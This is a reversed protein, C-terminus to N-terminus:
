RSLEVSNRLEDFDMTPEEGREVTERMEECRRTDLVELVTNRVFEEPSLCVEAAMAAIEAREEEDFLSELASM